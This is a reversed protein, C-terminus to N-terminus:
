RTHASLQRLVPCFTSKWKGHIWVLVPLSENSTATVMFPAPMTIDLNLCHFEDEPVEQVEVEQPIRLLHRFDVGNQPCRPRNCILNPGAVKLFESHHTGMRRASCPVLCISLQCPRRLGHRFPLM